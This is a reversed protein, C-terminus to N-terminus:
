LLEVDLDIAHGARDVELRVRRDKVYYSRVVDGNRLGIAWATDDPGLGHVERGGPLAMLERVLEAGLDRALTVRRRSVCSTPVKVMQVGILEVLVGTLMVVGFVCAFVVAGRTLWRERGSVLVVSRELKDMGDSPAVRM